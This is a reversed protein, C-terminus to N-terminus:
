SRAEERRSKRRAEALALRKPELVVRELLTETFDLVDEADIRSLGGLHAGDNGDERICKALERLSADLHGSEFLWKLRLGLDRRQKENPQAVVGDDRAPLLPETALDVCLRFMTVAANYCEVSLCTAGENFANAIPKDLLESARRTFEDRISIFRSVKCFDNVTAKENLLRRPSLPTCDQSQYDDGDHEVIFITARHCCRCVSFVEFDYKWGYSFKIQAAATVDFTVAQAGCRPCNGVLISM